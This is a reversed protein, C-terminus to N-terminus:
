GEGFFARGADGEFLDVLNRLHAVLEEREGALPVHDKAEVLISCVTKGTSSAWAVAPSTRRPPRLQVVNDKSV